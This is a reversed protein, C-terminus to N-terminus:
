EDVGRELFEPIPKFGVSDVFYADKRGSTDSLVIVDSVRLSHAKYDDPLNTNFRAYIDDLSTDDPVYCSYVAKYLKRDISLGVRELYSTGMFLRIASDPIETDLQYITLMKDNANPLNPLVMLGGGFRWFTHTYRFINLYKDILDEPVSAFNETSLGTVFFTGRIIELIEGDSSLIARNLSSGNYKSEENCIIAVDDAYPYYTQILGGVIAQMSELEDEIQVVRAPKNPEVLIITILKSM